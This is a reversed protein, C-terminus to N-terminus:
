RASVSVDETATWTLVQNLPGLVNVDFKVEKVTTGAETPRAVFQVSATRGREDGEPTLLVRLGSVTLESKGLEVDQLDDYAPNKARILRGLTRGLQPTFDIYPTLKGTLLGLAPSLRVVTPEDGSQKLQGSGVEFEGGRHWKVWVDGDIRGRADALGAAPVLLVIDQLGVRQFRLHLDIAPPALPVEAPDVFLEGGAVEIQATTLQLSRQPTLVASLALNRAGFRPHSINGVKLEFPETSMARLAVADVAFEGSFSIGELKWGDVAHVLMGDSWRCKLRGALEGRHVTGEGSVTVLGGASTGALLTAGLRPVLMGLWLSAEIRGEAVRWSGDGTALNVQGEVVFLTGAGEIRYEFSQRGDTGPGLVLKWPLVFEPNRDFLKLEGAFEGAATPWAALAAVRVLVALATLCLLKSFRLVGRYQGSGGCVALSANDAYGRVVM